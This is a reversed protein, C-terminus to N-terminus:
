ERTTRLFIQTRPLIQPHTAGRASATAKRTSGTQKTGTTPRGSQNVASCWAPEIRRRVSRRVSAIHAIRKLDLGVSVHVSVVSFLSHKRAGGGALPLAKSFWYVWEGSIM